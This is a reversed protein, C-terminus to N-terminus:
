AGRSVEVAGSGAGGGAPLAAATARGVEPPVYNGGSLILKFAEEATVSLMIVDTIKAFVLRGNIPNPAAPVFVCCLSPNHEVPDGSTFGMVYGRTADDPVLVVKAYIGEKGGPTISVHKWAQYADKLIPVRSLLRDLLGLIWKGIVSTVFLGLLYIASIALLLGVLPIVRGFLLKTIPQTHTEVYWLIFATVAVPIAAFTGALLTNRLHSQIRSSM